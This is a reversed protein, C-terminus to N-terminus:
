THERALTISFWEDHFPIRWWAFAMAAALWVALIWQAGHANM